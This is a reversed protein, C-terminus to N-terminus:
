YSICRVSRVHCNGSKLSFQTGGKSNIIWSTSANYESSSWYWEMDLEDPIVKYALALQEVTPVFWQSPIFGFHNLKSYVESFQKTWQCKVETSKPAVVLALGNEKKIVISGDALVDGVEAEQITLAKQALQKKLKELQQETDKISQLLQQKNNMQKPSTEVISVIDYESRKTNWRGTNTWTLIVDIPADMFYPYIAYLYASLEGFSSTITGTYSKGNLLEVTVEKNLFDSLNITM